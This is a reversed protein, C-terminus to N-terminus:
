GGTPPTTEAPPTTGEAPPTEVPPTEEVPPTAEPAPVTEVPPTTEVPAETKQGCASLLVTATLAGMLLKIKMRYYGSVTTLSAEDVMSCPLSNTDSPNVRIAPASELAKASKILCCRMKYTASQCRLGM